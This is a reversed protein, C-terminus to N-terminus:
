PTWRRVFVGHQSASTKNTTSSAGLANTIRHAQATNVASTTSAWFIGTGPIMFPGYNLVPTQGYHAVSYWVKLPPVRWDNHGDFTSALAADIAANWLATLTPDNPVFWELATFHDIFSRAGTTAFAGGVTNTFRNTNGFHNPVGLTLMNVLYQRQTSSGFSPLYDFWGAARISQEDGTRYSTGQGSWLEHGFAYIIPDGAPVLSPVNISGNSRVVGFAVGDRLVTADPATVTLLTQNSRVPIPSGIANGASDRLQVSGDPATVALGTQNSRVPVLSGIANAASDRLQVSGDPATVALGTQNSRV